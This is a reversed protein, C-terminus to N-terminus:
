NRRPGRMTGWLLFIVPRERENLKRIVEDTFTQWGIKSHSAAEHARVTLVANLMLVGQRAWKDLYGHGPIACGLDDNLEKYINRLSPPIKVGKEVSFCLGHAQHDDHYPDQGLIVVKVDNYDTYGFASFVKDEPPFVEQSRREEELFAEIDIFYDKSFEEGLVDQWQEPLLRM